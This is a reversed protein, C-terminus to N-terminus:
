DTNQILNIEKIITDELGLTNKVRTSAGQSLALFKEPENYLLEVADAMSLYDEGKVLIGSFEDVFESIAAVNNSIPVLGSSMAEDRSVGQSDMRTPTLFVGYERHLESIDNHTMFKQILTVNDFELLPQTLEEFLVGDGVICIELEHFFDRKSLEIIAKVTLDNAYKRSAFPRISLIKLRQEIPKEKYMFINNDIYNHIIEIQKQPLDVEFDELVEDKFYESVFVIKFNKHPKNLVEKWLIKRQDSLKKQRSIQQENLLEFEFMRRNWLQIEAGHAWVTVKIKDIHKKLVQWMNKDLLHVLVHDYQGTKLTSDLLEANGTVIDVDEFERYPKQRQNNIRFIDISLDEEKYARIRSHLFGYKYIDDYSPYQKTLILKKSKSVVAFPVEGHTGLILNGIAASGNGVLKLGFRLYVCNVPIAYTHTEGAHNMSHSIKKGEKDQFELVTRLEQLNHNCVLSFQSNLVMNFEERTFQKDCYIYAHKSEGLKTIIKFEGDSFSLKIKSSAPKTFYEFLQEAKVSPLTSDDQIAKEKPELSDSIKALKDTFSIGKDLLKLDKVTELELASALYGKKCYNFEDTALMKIASITYNQDLFSKLSNENLASSKILSSRIDLLTTPKYQCGDNELTVKGVYQYFTAKGYADYKAYQSAQVLDTLYNSGYYDESSLIGFLASDNQLKILDNLTDTAEKYIIVCDNKIKMSQKFDTWVILKKNLYKQDEFSKIIIDFEDLSSVKAFLQVLPLTKTFQENNIKSLIFSLRDAYTHESMVKRLGLLRLKRYHNENNCIEDLRKSTQHSNDSSIVLDGFLLRMGRSFNSVVITNSALLEFVRRAFMSQSQKITNMNIGYRYGKYAKDIEEFPLKGLIMPQYKDPFQYDPHTNDFNRDYIEVPKYKKVANILSDFDRQREPYRLYFSGAFNFADKRQYVEVPNHTLPQAAFPLFNVNSQHIENKYRPVCDIDTTFVHDVIKAVPLFTDFHVPDEKNWFMTQINHLNCYKIIEVLESSCNSIKGSWLDDKGKWASEIFVLNPKFSLLEQHWNQPTLQFLDCEAKFSNFTFEDMISAIKLEKLSSIDIKNKNKNKITLSEVVSKNKVVSNFVIKRHENFEVYDRYLHFPLMILSRFSNMSNVLRNGWRYSLTLKIKNVNKKAQELEATLSKNRANMGKLNTQTQALEVTLSKNRASMGKFNTKYKELQSLLKNNNEKEHTSVIDESIKTKENSIKKVQKQEDKETNM